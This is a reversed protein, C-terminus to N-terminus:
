LKERSYKIFVDELTPSIKKFDSIDNRNEAFSKLKNLDTQNNKDINIHLGKGYYNIELQSFEKEFIKKLNISNNSIIEYIDFDISNKLQEPTGHTILSGRFILGLRDCYEAEDMYHTTVFITTGQAAMSKILEWFKKRTDVAVGSTPEDLFLMEPKHMIACTLALRQKVGLSLNSTMKNIYNELGTKKLANNQVTKITNRPINYIGAYFDMNEKATLNEYLSFKQSMYGSNKKIFDSHTFINHGIVEANGSTPKLLGTLMKITTSKGAGNPGLFGFIEGKFVELSIDSVATFDDFKKTLNKLNVAIERM